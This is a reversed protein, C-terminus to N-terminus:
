NHIDLVTLFANKNNEIITKLQEPYKNNEIWENGNWLERGYAVDNIADYVYCGFDKFKDINEIKSIEAGDCYIFEDNFGIYRVCDTENFEGFFDKYHKKMNDFLGSKITKGNLNCGYYAYDDDQMKYKVHGGYRGGITFSDWSFPYRKIYEERSLKEALCKGDEDERFLDEENFKQITKKIKNNDLITKTILIVAYHM